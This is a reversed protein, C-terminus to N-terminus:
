SVQSNPLQALSDKLTSALAASKKKLQASLLFSKSSPSSPNPNAATVATGNGGKVNGGASSIVPTILYDQVGISRVSELYANCRHILKVAQKYQHEIIYREIEDSATLLWAPIM